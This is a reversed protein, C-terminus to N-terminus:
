SQVQELEASRWEENMLLEVAYGGEEEILGREYDLFETDSVHGERNTWQRRAAQDDPLEYRVKVTLEVLM